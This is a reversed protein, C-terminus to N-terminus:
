RAPSRILRPSTFIERRIGPGGPGPKFSWVRPCRKTRSRHSFGRRRASEADLDSARTTLAAAPIDQATCTSVTSTRKRKGGRQRVPLEGGRVAKMAEIVDGRSRRRASPRHCLGIKSNRAQGRSPRLCQEFETGYASPDDAISSFAILHWSAQEVTPRAWALRDPLASHGDLNPMRSQRWHL